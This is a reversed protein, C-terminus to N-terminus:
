LSLRAGKRPFKRQPMYKALKITLLDGHDSQNGSKRGGHSIEPRL